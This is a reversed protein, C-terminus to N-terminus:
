SAKTLRDSAVNKKNVKPKFTCEKMENELKKLEERERWKTQKELHHMNLKYLDITGVKPTQKQNEERGDERKRWSRKRAVKTFIFPKFHAVM